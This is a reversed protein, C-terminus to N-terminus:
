RERAVSQYLLTAAGGLLGAFLVMAVMPHSRIQVRPNLTAFLDDLTGALEERTEELELKLTNIGKAPSM